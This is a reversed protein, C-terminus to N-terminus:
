NIGRKRNRSYTENQDRIEVVAGMQEDTQVKVRRLSTQERRPKSEGMEVEVEQVQSM